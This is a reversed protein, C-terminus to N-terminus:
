KKAEIHLLYKFRQSESLLEDRIALLENSDYEKNHKNLLEIIKETHKLVDNVNKVPSTIVRQLPKVLELKNKNPHQGLFVEVYQDILEDLKSLFDDTIKHFSYKNTTWHFLKISHKLNMLNCVLHQVYKIKAGQSRIATKTKSRSKTKLMSRVAHKSKSRKQTVRSRSM